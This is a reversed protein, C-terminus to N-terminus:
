VATGLRSFIISTLPLNAASMEMTAMREGCLPAMRDIEADAWLLTPDDAPQNKRRDACIAALLTMRFMLRDDSWTAMEQLTLTDNM